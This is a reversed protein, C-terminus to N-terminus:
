KKRKDLDIFRIRQILRRERAQSALLRKRKLLARKTVLQFYDSGLSPTAQTIEAEASNQLTALLEKLKKTEALLNKADLSLRYAVLGLVYIGSIVVVAVIWGIIEM